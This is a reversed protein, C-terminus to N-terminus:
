RPAYGRCRDFPQRGSGDVLEHIVLGADSDVMESKNVLRYLPLVVTEAM